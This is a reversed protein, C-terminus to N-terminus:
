NRAHSGYEEPPTFAGKKPRALLSGPPASVPKGMRIDAARELFDLDRELCMNHREAFDVFERELDSPDLDEAGDEIKSVFKRLDEILDTREISAKGDHLEGQLDAIM